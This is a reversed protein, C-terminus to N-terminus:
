TLHDSKIAFIKRRVHAIHTILAVGINYLLSDINLVWSGPMNKKSIFKGRFAFLMVRLCEESLSNLPFQCEKLSLESLVLKQKVEAYPFSNAGLPLWSWYIYLCPSTQDQSTLKHNQLNQQVLRFCIQKPTLMMSSTWRRKVMAQRSEM